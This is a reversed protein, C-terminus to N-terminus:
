KVYYRWKVLDAPPIGSRRKKQDTLRSFFYGCTPKSLTSFPAVSNAIIGGRLVTPLPDQNSPEPESYPVVPPEQLSSTLSFGGTSRNQLRQSHMHRSFTGVPQVGVGIGSGHCASQAPMNRVFINWFAPNPLNQNADRPSLPFIDTKSLGEFNNNIQGQFGSNPM